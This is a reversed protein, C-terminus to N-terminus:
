LDLKLGLIFSRVQPIKGYDIGMYFPSNSYLFDPDYGSYKTITFLNSATVYISIGKYIGSMSPLNYNVTLQKLRLYSGDEIWRDSFVTNGTPDGISARPMSTNTNTTTWRNLVSTSQNSYSDMSETKYRTYNYIDNGVSYNFFAFLELRKYTLSTSFGGFLDPNPDGIIMKDSENIINNNDTDLFKIDGAQMPLGNPGTIKNADSTNNFLGNTKYGYFANLSNGISTIYQGGEIDTVISKNNPNIFNLKNIVSTNKSVSASFQWVLDGTQVRTDASLEIGDSGLEGGNDYYETYGFTSPLVQKIILNGVTSKYYDFHINTSQKFLSLDFGINITSKKELELNENPISERLLIGQNNIRRTVYYLKSYDYVSSFMNGTLSYSARLKFDDVFGTQPFFKESSVRWAGAISPYINYRNKSNVESNGDYSVLSHIFYKNRFNYNISSFYSTWTLGRFDGTSSRLFTYKSGQGLSKFDDSPTNLDLALNNKYSNKLYKFGGQLEINHGSASRNSYSLTTHNQSSRLENVFDGPSNKASDGPLQIVGINPLFINERSNNFNIGILNSLVLKDTIKFQANVSSLFHYNRNSGISNNVLVSPNSVNFLGIDDFYTLQTGTTNDRTYPAMIPPMQVASLIPNKWSNYGQNPLYSDSLSLKANPTISFKDSINIKGNIRLNFRSYYSEEYLGNQLLYGTAINYTAIDDGGKLFFHYKQLSSPKYITKQWDTSNNYKYYDKVGPPGNLWPYMKNVDTISKGQSSLLQSFYSKFQGADLLDLGAPTLSIGSYASMKIVTSTESKQETNINIVGNSGAAGLFSAGDKMITIDSIDDVDVVELPNLSFGDMLSQNAYNYDHIMGDIFLLPENKGYLSSFGRINMYTKHGPMGSQEIVSLGSIRGQIIQDFSTAKTMKLEDMNLTQLSFSANKITKQGLPDNYFNDASKYKESVLSVNVNDRGNLYLSRIIYGPLNFILESQNNPVVISFKGNEDTGSTKGTSVVSIAVQKLPNGTGSELVTGNIILNSDQANVPLIYIFTFVFIILTLFSKDSIVKAMEFLNNKTM